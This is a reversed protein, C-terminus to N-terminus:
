LVGDFRAAAVVALIDNDDSGPVWRGDVRREAEIEGPEVRSTWVRVVDAGHDFDIGTELTMTDLKLDDAQGETLTPLEDLEHYLSMDYM